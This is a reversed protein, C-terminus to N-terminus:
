LRSTTMNRQKKLSQVVKIMQPTSSDKETQQKTSPELKKKAQATELIERLCNRYEKILQTREEFEIELSRSKNQLQLIKLEREKISNRISEVYKTEQTIIRNLLEIIDKMDSFSQERFYM